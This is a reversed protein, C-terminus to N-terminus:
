HGQGAKTRNGMTSLAPTQVMNQCSQAQVHVGESGAHMQHHPSTSMNLSSTCAHLSRSSCWVMM